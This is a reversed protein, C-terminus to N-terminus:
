LFSCLSEKQALQLSRCGAGDVIVVFGLESEFNVMVCDAGVCCDVCVGVSIRASTFVEFDCM